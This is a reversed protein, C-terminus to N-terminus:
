CRGEQIKDEITEIKGEIVDVEEEQGNLQTELEAIDEDLGTIQDEIDQLLDDVEAKTYADVDNATLVVTGNKGNVSTVSGAQAPDFLGSMGDGITEEDYYVGNINLPLDASWVVNRYFYDDKLYFKVNGNEIKYTLGALAFGLQLKYEGTDTLEQLQLYNEASIIRKM